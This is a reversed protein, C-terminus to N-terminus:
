RKHTVMDGNIRPYGLKADSNIRPYSQCNVADGNIRPYSQRDNTTHSM